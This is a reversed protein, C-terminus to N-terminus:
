RDVERRYSEIVALAAAEAEARVETPSAALVDMTDVTDVEAVVPKPQADADPEADGSDPGRPGDFSSVPSKRSLLPPAQNQITSATIPPHLGM